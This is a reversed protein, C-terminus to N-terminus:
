SFVLFAGRYQGLLGRGYRASTVLRILGRERPRKHSQVLNKKFKIFHLLPPKIKLGNFNLVFLFYVGQLCFGLVRVM